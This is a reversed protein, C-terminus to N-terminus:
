PVVVLKRRPGNAQRSWAEAIHDLPVREVDVEIDGATAHRVLRAYEVELVERPVNFDSYGLIELGKFRIAASTVPATAGASQGLQVIRAGRAAVEAAAGAPEGWLPDFILTPGDEGCAERLQDAFDGEGIAVTADAGAHAARELGEPSRGAAVVRGAGLLRAAQLAIFGVTGTAGLVLVTEGERVPARWVFPLWGALGAIGLTAAVAPDADAPIRYTSSDAGSVLEAVGGDRKMGIGGGFVWVLEGSDRRRGVAECGPVYPLPPHGAPARGSAVAIDIPNLPAALVEVLIGDAPDPVDAVEPAEGLERIVAARM